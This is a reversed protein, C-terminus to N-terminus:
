YLLPCTRKMLVEQNNKIDNIDSIVNSICSNLNDSCQASHQALNDIKGQYYLECGLLSPTLEFHSQLESEREAFVKSVISLKRFAKKMTCKYFENDKAFIAGYLSPTDLYPIPSDEIELSTGSSKYFYVAGKTIQVASVALNPDQLQIPLSYPQEFFILKVSHFGATEVSDLNSVSEKKFEEPLDGYIEQAFKSSPNVFVYKTLPDSIFLFNSTSFPAKFELAWTLIKNGKITEQTFFIDYPTEKTLPTNKVSYESYSDSDCIFNLELEPTDLENVTGPSLGSSTLITELQNLVSASLKTESIEKQKYVISIFFLLILAGAIIIFIWSFQISIQAKKEKIM